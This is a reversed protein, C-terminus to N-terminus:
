GCVDNNCDGAGSHCPCGRIYVNGKVQRNSCSEGQFNKAECKRSRGRKVCCGSLCTNSNRCNAGNSRNTSGIERNGESDVAFQEIHKIESEVVSAIFAVCVIALLVVKLM